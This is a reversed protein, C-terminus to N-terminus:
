TAKLEELTLFTLFLLQLNTLGDRSYPTEADGADVSISIDYKVADGAM